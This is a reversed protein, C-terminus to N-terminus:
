VTWFTKPTAAPVVNMTALTALSHVVLLIALVLRQSYIRVVSITPILRAPTVPVPLPQPTALRTSLAAIIAAHRYPM